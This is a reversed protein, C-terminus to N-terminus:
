RHARHRGGPKQGRALVDRVTRQAIGGLETLEARTTTLSKALTCLSLGLSDLTLSLRQFSGVSGHLKSEEAMQRLVDFAEGQPGFGITSVSLRRGFRSALAGIRARIQAGTTMGAMSKGSFNDSPRGDSLFLLQLACSGHPNCLLLAEAADLSPIYNGDFRPEATRLLRILDYYVLWDM